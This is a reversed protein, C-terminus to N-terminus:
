MSKLSPPLSSSSSCPPFFFISFHIVTYTHSIDLVRLFSFSIFSASPILAERPPIAELVRNKIAKLSCHSRRRRFSELLYLRGVPFIGGILNCKVTAVLWMTNQKKRGETERERTERKEGSSYDSSTARTAM